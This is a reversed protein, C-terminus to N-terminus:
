SKDKTSTLQVELKHKAEEESGAIDGYISKGEHAINIGWVEKGSKLTRILGIHSQYESAEEVAKRERAAILQLAEHILQGTPDEEDDYNIQLGARNFLSELSAWLEEDEVNTNPM